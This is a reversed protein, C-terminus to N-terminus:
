SSASAYRCRSVRKAHNEDGSFYHQLLIWGFHNM